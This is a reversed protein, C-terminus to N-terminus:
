VDSAKTVIGKVTILSGIANAKIERMKSIQKKANPGHV